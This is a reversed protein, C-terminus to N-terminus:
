VCGLKITEAETPACDMATILLSLAAVALLLKRTM